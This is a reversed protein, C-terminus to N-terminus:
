RDRGGTRARPPRRPSGAGSRCGAPRRRCPGPGAGARAAVRQVREPQPAQGLDAVQVGHGLQRVQDAGGGPRLRLALGSRASRRHSSLARLSPGPAEGRRASQRRRARGGPLEPGTLRPPRYEESAARQAHSRRWLVLALGAVRDIAAGRPRELALGDGPAPEHGAPREGRAADRRGREAQRGQAEGEPGISSSLM